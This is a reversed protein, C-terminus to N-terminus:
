NREITSMRISFPGAEFNSKQQHIPKFFEEGTRQNRGKMSVYARVVIRRRFHWIDGWERPSLEADITADAYGSAIWTVDGNEVMSIARKTAGENVARVFRNAVITPRVFWLYFAVAFVTFGVLVWRLTFRPRVFRM